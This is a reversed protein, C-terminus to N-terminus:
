ESVGAQNPFRQARTMSQYALRGALTIRWVIAPSGSPALRRADTAEILGADRLEGRRKGASTQQRGVLAGLEFDTLGNPREAHARLVLRRDHARIAPHAEAALHSTEPDTNRAGAWSFLDCSM